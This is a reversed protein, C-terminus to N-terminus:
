RQRRSLERAIIVDMIQNTGELIKHVRLDRMVREVGYEKLYGYGGLVQVADDAVSYCADTAFRKAMASELTASEAGADFSEAARRVMLRSAHVATAMDALMFQVAQFQSIPQGFQKRESAYQMAKDLCFAAGGVSCTGINIRGGDLATMAISFGQGEEGLRHEQPVRVGDLSISCTPQANWGMKAEQKGFSLGPSGKEVLFATIGKPGPAGTRAMVLYLDSVGGGSIFAKSGTLVYDTGDKKATTSLSAADSGSGPETLCYSSFAELSILQPLFRQRQADTGYRDICSSVMNHITLYATTSIDGYALAEFIIAADSRTLGTGGMDESIYVSAFGLQAAKRLTDVPFHKEEDWKAANPILEKAAFERATRQFDLNPSLIMQLVVCGKPRMTM